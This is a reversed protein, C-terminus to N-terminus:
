EGITRSTLLRLPSFDIHRQPQTRELPEFSCVVEKSNRAEWAACRGPEDAKRRLLGAEAEVKVAVDGRVAM